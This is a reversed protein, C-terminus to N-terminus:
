GASCDAIRDKHALQRPELKQEVCIAAAMGVAQANHGCTAMVRSSGFAIHSASIIRGALLLNPVNRSYMSRYPIQYVGKSHWQVCPAEASYVGEPPHLDIAGAALPCRTTTSASSSSTKNCSFTTVRSAVARANARVTGVWELTKTEADPFKGSNKIYDWVCYIVKWLEWKIQECDHVTDLTGGYEIWWLESGFEKANFRRYRPIKTIDDLAYAPRTFRVPKKTDRTYFFISHGLLDSSPEAPALQEGFEDIAEAGIRFAAGALFGM